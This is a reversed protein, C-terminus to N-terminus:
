QHSPPVCVWLADPQTERLMAEYSLFVQAEWGAATQEAARRDLDCVAVLRVDNRPRLANLYPQALDGAGFFALNFTMRSEKIVIAPPGSAPIIRIPSTKEQWVIRPTGMSM